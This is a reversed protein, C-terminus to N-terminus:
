NVGLGHWWFISSRSARTTTPQSSNTPLHPQFTTSCSCCHLQQATSQEQLQLYILGIAKGCENIKRETIKEDKKIISITNWTYKCPSSSVRTTHAIPFSFPFFVSCLIHFSFPFSFCHFVTKEQNRSGNCFLFISIKCSYILHMFCNPYLMFINSNWTFM